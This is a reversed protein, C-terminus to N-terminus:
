EKVEAIAQSVEKRREVFKVDVKSFEILDRHLERYGITTFLSDAKGYLSDDIVPLDTEVEDKGTKKAVVVEAIIQGLWRAQHQTIDGPSCNKKEFGQLLFYGDVNTPINIFSKVREGMIIELALVLSEIDCYEQDEGLRKELIEEFVKGDVQSKLEFKIENKRREKESNLRVLLKRCIEKSDADGYEPREKEKNISLIAM